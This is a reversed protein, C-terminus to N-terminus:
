WRSSRPVPTAATASASATRERWRVATGAGRSPGRRGLLAPRCSHPPGPGRQARVAGRRWGQRRVGLAAAPLASRRSPVAKGRGRLLL